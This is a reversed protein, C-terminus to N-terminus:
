RESWTELSSSKFSTPRLEVPTIESVTPIQVDGDAITFMDGNGTRWVKWKKMDSTIYVFYDLHSLDLDKAQSVTFSRHTWFGVGIKVAGKVSNPAFRQQFTRLAQKYDQETKFKALVDIDEQITDRVFRPKNEQLNTFRDPLFAVIDLYTRQQRRGTGSQVLIVRDGQAGPYSAAVIRYGNPRLINHISVYTVDDEDFSTRERLPTTAPYDKFFELEEYPQWTFTVRRNGSSDEIAFLRSNGFITRLPKNLSSFNREIFRTLDYRVMKAPNGEFKRVVDMFEANSHLGSGLAFCYLYDYATTLGSKKIYGSIASEQPTDKYWADNQATLLMKSIVAASSCGYYALMGREPDMAHGFRNIKLELAAEGLIPDKAIWRTRSTNLSSLSDEHSETLRKKWEALDKNTALRDNLSESWKGYYGKNLLEGVINDILFDFEEIRKPCSVFDDQVLVVGKEDCKWDFHFFIKKWKRWVLSYPGALDFDINGGHESPSIKSSPSIKVYICNNRAAAVLGDFRQLEHDETFVATSFEILLLPHEVEKEVVTVMADVEKWFVIPAVEKSYLEHDGALKVLEVPVHKGSKKIAALISPLIFHNAQELSEYYVRIEM